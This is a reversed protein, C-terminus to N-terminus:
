LFGSSFRRWHWITWRSDSMFDVLMSVSAVCDFSLVRSDPGLCPDEQGKSLKLCQLHEM